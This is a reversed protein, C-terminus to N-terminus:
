RGRRRARMAGGSLRWGTRCVARCCNRLPQGRQYQWRTGSFTQQAASFARGSGYTTGSSIQYVPESSSTYVVQQPQQYVVTRVPESQPIVVPSAPTDDGIVLQQPQPQSELVPVLRCTKGDCIQRYVVRAPAPAPAAPVAVAPATENEPLKIDAISPAATGVEDIKWAGVIQPPASDAVHPGIAPAAAACLCVIAALKQIDKM